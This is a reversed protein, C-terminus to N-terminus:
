DVEPPLTFAWYVCYGLLILLLKGWHKKLIIGFKTLYSDVKNLKQETSDETEM